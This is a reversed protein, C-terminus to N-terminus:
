KLMNMVLSKEVPSLGFKGLAKEIMGDEATRDSIRSVMRNFQVHDFRKKRSVAPWSGPLLDADVEALAGGRKFKVTYLGPPLDTEM